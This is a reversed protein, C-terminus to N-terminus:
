AALIFDEGELLRRSVLYTAIRDGTGRQSIFSIILSEGSAPLENHAIFAYGPVVRKKVDTFAAIRLGEAELKAARDRCLGSTGAIIIPRGDPFKRRYWAAIWTAKTTFFADVSYNGHTRSM